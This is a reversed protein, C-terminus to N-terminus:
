ACARAAPRLTGTTKQHRPLQTWSYAAASFRGRDLVQYYSPPKDPWTKSFVVIKGRGSKYMTLPGLDGYIVFGMLSLRVTGFQQAM